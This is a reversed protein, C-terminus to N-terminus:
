RPNWKTMMKWLVNRVISFIRLFPTMFTVHKSGTSHATFKGYLRYFNCQYGVMDIVNPRPNRRHACSKTLTHDCDACRLLGAFINDFGDSKKM